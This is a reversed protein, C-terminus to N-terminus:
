RPGANVFRKWTGESMHGARRLTLKFSTWEPADPLGCDIEQIYGDKVRTWLSGGRHDLGEGDVDYLRCRERDRIEDRRYTLKALGRYRYRASDAAVSPRVIAISLSEAPTTWHPLTINLTALDLDYLHWPRWVVDVRRAAETTDSVVDFSRDDSGGSVVRVLVPAGHRTVDWWEIRRIACTTWEMWVIVHRARSGGETVSLTEFRDHAAIYLTVPAAHSGDLNSKVYRFVSGVPSRDPQYLFRIADDARGASALLM